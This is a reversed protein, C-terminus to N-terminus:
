RRVPASPALTMNEPLGTPKKKPKKLDTEPSVPKDKERMLDLKKQLSKIVEHRAAEDTAWPLWVIREPLVQVGNHFTASQLMFTDALPLMQELLSYMTAQAALLVGNDKNQDEMNVDAGLDLLKKALVPRNSVIALHLGSRGSRDCSDIRIDPALLLLNFVDEFNHEIARMLVTETNRDKANPSGGHSLLLKLMSLNRTSVCFHLATQGSVMKPALGAPALDVLTEYEDCDNILSAVDKNLERATEVICQVAEENNSEVALHLPRKGHWTASLDVKLALERTCGIQGHKCALHLATCGFKNAISADIGGGHILRRVLETQGRRAACHLKEM